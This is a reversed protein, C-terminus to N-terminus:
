SPLKLVGDRLARAGDELAQTATPVLRSWHLFGHLVGDYIRLETSGGAKTLTDSLALSDDLLPDLAAAGIFAPPLGSLSASLLDLAEPGPVAGSGRYCSEYFCLDAPTLSYVPDAFRRRSRSDRLGYLGYYLLIFKVLNPRRSRLRLTAALALHAGASDGGISLRDPDIGHAQPHEAVALVAQEVTDLPVPYPHEPALPYDLGIVVAGSRRCLQRMIRDHTDFSGVVFGGGHLFVLAPLPADGSPRYVRIGVTQSDLSVVEDTVSALDIVPENWWAREAQYAARMGAVGDGADPTLSASIRLAEAVGPALGDSHLFEPHL